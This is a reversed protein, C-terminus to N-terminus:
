AMRYLYMAKAWYPKFKQSWDHSLKNVSQIAQKSTSTTAKTVYVSDYWKQASIVNPDIVAAASSKQIQESRDKKCSHVVIVIVVLLLVIFLKVPLPKLYPKM